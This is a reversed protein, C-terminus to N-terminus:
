SAPREPLKREVWRLMRTSARCVQPFDRALLLLGLPLMWVGLVPLISFIGGIVLGIGLPIRIVARPPDRILRPLGKAFDPLKREIDHLVADLAQQDADRHTDPARM